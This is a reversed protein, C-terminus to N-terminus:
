ERFAYHNWLRMYEGLYIDAVRSNGRIVLMNEDNGTTSSESFNASGTVVIPDDGLPDIVMFKTHVYQVHQNLGTLVEKVWRDFRNTSIRSGVAFRNEKM